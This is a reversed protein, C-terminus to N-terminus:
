PCASHPSLNKDFTKANFCSLQNAKPVQHQDVSTKDLHRRLEKQNMEMRNAACLPLNTGQGRRLISSKKGAWLACFNTADHVVPSM